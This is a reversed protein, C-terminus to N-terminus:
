VFKMDNSNQLFETFLTTPDWSINAFNQDTDILDEFQCFIQNGVTSLTTPLIVSSDMVIEQSSEDCTAATTEQMQALRRQLAKGYLAACHTSNLAIDIMLQAIAAVTNINKVKDSLAPEITGYAQLIVLSVFALMVFGYDTMYRLSDKLVPGFGLIGNLISAAHEICREVSVRQSASLSGASPNIYRFIYTSMCFRAYRFHFNLTTGFGGKRIFSDWKRYWSAFEADAADLAASPSYDVNDSINSPCWWEGLHPDLSSIKEWLLCLEVEGLLGSIQPNADAGQLLSSAVRISSDGRITPPTGTVIATSCVQHSMTFLWLWYTYKKYADSATLIGSSTRIATKVGEVSRHINLQIAYSEILAKILSRPSQGSDGPLGPPAQPYAHLVILSRLTVMATSQDVPSSTLQNQLFQLIFPHLIDATLGGGPLFRCTVYCICLVLNRYKQLLLDTDQFEDITLIPIFPLIRDCFIKVLQKMEHAALPEDGDNLEQVQRQPGGLIDTSNLPPLISLNHDNLGSNPESCEVVISFPSRSYISPLEAPVSDEKDSSVTTQDCRSSSPPTNFAENQGVLGFVRERSSEPRAAEQDSSQQKPNHYDASDRPLIQARGSKISDTARQRDLQTTNESRRHSGTRTAPSRPLPRLVCARGARQCRACPSSGTRICRMKLRHCASCARGGRGLRAQDGSNGTESREPRAMFTSIHIGHISSAGPWVDEPADSQDRM